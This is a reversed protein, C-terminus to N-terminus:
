SYLEYVEVNNNNHKGRRYFLDATTDEVCVCSGGITLWVLNVLRRDFAASLDLLLLQIPKNVELDRIINYIVHIVTTETSHNVRYASQYNDILKNTLLYNNLQNSFINELIKAIIPLQSIPRYKNLLNHNSKYKNLIPSIIAHKLEPPVIGTSM